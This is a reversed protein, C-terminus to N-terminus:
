SSAVAGRQASIPGPATLCLTGSLPPDAHKWGGTNILFGTHGPTHGPLPVALVAGSGLVDYGETFPAALASLPVRHVPCPVADCPLM